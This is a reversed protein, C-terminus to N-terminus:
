YLAVDRLSGLADEGGMQHSSSRVARDLLAGDHGAHWLIGLSVLIWAFALIVLAYEVSAQGRLGIRAWRERLDHTPRKSGKSSMTEGKRSSGGWRKAM